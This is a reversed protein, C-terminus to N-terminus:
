AHRLPQVQEDGASYDQDPWFSEYASATEGAWTDEWDEATVYREGTVTARVNGWEVRTIRYRSQQYPFVKGVTHGIGPLQRAACQFSIVVDPDQLSAAHGRSCVRDITDMFPSNYPQGQSEARVFTQPNVMVGSGTLSLGEISFDGGSLNAATVVLQVTGLVDVVEATISGGANQWTAAPVLNGSADRVNYCGDPAPFVDSPEPDAVWVPSSSPALVRTVRSGAAVSSSGDDRWMTGEGSRPLLYVVDVIRGGTLNVPTTTVNSATSPFEISEAGIDTVRLTSDTYDIQVGYTACLEKLTAWVDGRWAPIVVMQDTAQFDVPLSSLDGTVGAVYFEIAASLPIEGPGFYRYIRNEYGVISSGDVAYLTSDTVAVAVAVNLSALLETGAAQTGDTRLKLIGNSTTVYISDAAISLAYADVAPVTWQWAGAADFKKVVDLTRDAVYVYGSSDVAVGAPGQFQTDGTGSSGWKAAFVHSSNFRQVRDLLQDTVFVDGSDAVAIGSINQFQGDGSGNSGFQSVYAYSANFVSIRASNANGVYFNGSGDIAFASIGYLGSAGLGYAGWTDILNGRRDFVYVCDGATARNVIVHLNDASDVVAGVPVLGAYDPMWSGVYTFESVPGYAHDVVFRQMLGAVGLAATAGTISVDSVRGEMSGAQTTLTALNDAVFRSDERAHASFRASTVAGRTDGPVAPTVEETISWGPLTSGHSGSGTM